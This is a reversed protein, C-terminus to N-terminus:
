GTRSITHRTLYDRVREFTADWEPARDSLVSVFLPWAGFYGQMQCTSPGADDSAAVYVSCRVVFKPTGDPALKMSNVPRYSRGNTIAGGGSFGCADRPRVGQPARAVLMALATDERM